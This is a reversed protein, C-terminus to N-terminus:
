YIPREYTICEENDFVLYLIDSINFDINNLLHSNRLLIGNHILRMRKAFYKITEDNIAKHFGNAGIIKPSLKKKMIYFEKLHQVTNRVTNGPIEELTTRFTKNNLKTQLPIIRIITM